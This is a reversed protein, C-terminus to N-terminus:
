VDTKAASWGRSYQVLHVLRLLSFRVRTALPLGDNRYIANQWQLDSWLGRISMPPPQMGAWATKTDHARRLDFFSVQSVEEDSGLSRTWLRKRHSPRDVLISSLDLGSIGSIRDALPQLRTPPTVSLTTNDVQDNEPLPCAFTRMSRNKSFEARRAHGQQPPKLGASRVMDRIGSPNRSQMKRCTRNAWSPRAALSETTGPPGRLCRGNPRATDPRLITRHDSSPSM